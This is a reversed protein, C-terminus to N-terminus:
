QRFYIQMRQTNTLPRLPEQTPIYPGIIWEIPLRALRVSRSATESEAGNTREHTRADPGEARAGIGLILILTAVLIFKEAAFGCCGRESLDNVSTLHGKRFLLHTRNLMGATGWEAKFSKM